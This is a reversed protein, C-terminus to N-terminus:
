ANVLERKIEALMTEAFEVLESPSVERNVNEGSYKSLYCQVVGQNPQPLNRVGWQGGEQKSAIAGERVFYLVRCLNLTIYMPNSTIDKVAHGIDHLISALYHQRDIPPYLEALPQGYLTKGRYYAVTIQSALDYDEYGGCVYDEDTLYRERHYDSFHYECPTPYVFRSLHEELVISCEMSNELEELLLLIRQSIQKAASESLPKKVVVLIDIDSSSPNFGGMALSGHLYVGVLNESLAGLFLTKISELQKQM